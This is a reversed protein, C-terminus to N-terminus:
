RLAKPLTESHGFDGATTTNFYFTAEGSRDIARMPGNNIVRENATHSYFTLLAM